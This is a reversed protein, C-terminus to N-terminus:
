KLPQYLGGIHYNIRAKVTSFRADGSAVLAYPNARPGPAPLATLPGEASILELDLYQYKVKVSLQPTLKREVGQWRHLGDARILPQHQRCKQLNESCSADGGSGGSKHHLREDGNRNCKHRAIPQWRWGQDKSTAQSGPRRSTLFSPPRDPWPGAFDKVFDTGTVM